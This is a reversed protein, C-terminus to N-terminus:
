LEAIPHFSVMSADIGSITARLIHGVCAAGTTKDLLSEVGAMTGFHWCCSQESAQTPAAIREVQVSHRCEGMARSAKLGNFVLAYMYAEQGAVLDTRNVGHRLISPPAPGSPHLWREPLRLSRMRELMQDRRELSAATQAVQVAVM